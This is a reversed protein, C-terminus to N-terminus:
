VMNRSIAYIPARHQNNKLSLIVDIMTLGTGSILVTDEPAITTLRQANWPNNIYHTAPLHPFQERPLLNGTALVTKDAMYSAGNATNIIVQQNDAVTLGVVEQTHISIIAGHPSPTQLCAQLRQQLYEGYLRRPLFQEGIPKTPFVYPIANPNNQIWDIFDDPKDVYISMNGAAVNLLSHADLETAYAIGKAITANKEFISIQM